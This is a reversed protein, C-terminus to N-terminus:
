AAVEAADPPQAGPAGATEQIFRRTVDVSADIEAGSPLHRAFKVLDCAALFEGLLDQHGFRLARSRRAEALFEETTREPAMLGFRLEIYTRVLGSLRFFFEQVRGQEVLREALLADLQRLAWVHPPPPPAAAAQRRPRRRVLWWLLVALAVTVLIFGTWYVIRPTQDRPVAVPGQIDAFEAPHYQGEIASAVEIRFPETTVEGGDFTATLAPIERAGSLNSDITFEQRWIRTEGDVETEVAGQERVLFDQFADAVGPLTVELGAPARVEVSLRLPEAVRLEDRAATVTLTVGDSEAARSVPTPPGDNPEARQGDRACSALACLLVALALRLV